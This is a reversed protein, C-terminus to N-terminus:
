LLAVLLLPCGVNTEDNQSISARVNLIHLFIILSLLAHNHCM